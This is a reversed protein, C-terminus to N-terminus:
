HAPQLVEVREVGHEPCRIHAPHLESLPVRLVPPLLFMQLSLNFVILLKLSLTGSALLDPQVDSSDKTDRVYFTLKMPRVSHSGPKQLHDLYSNLRKLSTENVEQLVCWETNCLTPFRRKVHHHDTKHEFFM